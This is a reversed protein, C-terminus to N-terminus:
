SGWSLFSRGGVKGRDKMLMHQFWDGALVQLSSRCSHVGFQTLFVKISGCVLHLQEKKKLWSFSNLCCSVKERM